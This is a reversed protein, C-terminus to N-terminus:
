KLLLMKKTESFDGATMRYLYVGSAVSNGKDDTGDWEVRKYGAKSFENALTKVKQGLVNFVEVRVETPRPVAFVIVTNPNFPNPMNQDLEYRLPLHQVQVEQVPLVIDGGSCHAFKPSVAADFFPPHQLFSISDRISDRCTLTFFGAPPYFLSDLDITQRIKQTLVMWMSGLLKATGTTNRAIPRMASMDIWGMLASGSDPKAEAGPLTDVHWQIGDQQILSLMGGAPDWRRIAGYGGFQLGIGNHRFGLSIGGMANSNYVYIQVPFSDGVALSSLDALVPCGVRVTDCPGLDLETIYGKPTNVTAVKTKCVYCTDPASYCTDNRAQAFSEAGMSAVCVAALVFLVKLRM